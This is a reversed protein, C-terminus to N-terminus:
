LAGGYIVPREKQPGEVMYQLLLGWQKTRVSSGASPFIWCRNNCLIVEAEAVKFSTPTSEGKPNFADICASAPHSHHDSDTFVAVKKAGRTAALLALFIGVPMEQGAFHRGEGLMQSSAPMLLDVLVVDFTNAGILRQGEDYSSAVTLDHDGGLQERAADCHERYDDIVLIKM